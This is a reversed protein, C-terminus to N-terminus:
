KQALGGYVVAHGYEQANRLDVVQYGEIDHFTETNYEDVNQDFENIVQTNRFFADRKGDTTVVNGSGMEPSFTGPPTYVQGGWEVYNALNALDSFIRKPWFGVPEFDDGILLWWNGNALDRKVYLQKEYIPGGFKSIQEYVFDPPIDSRVLVFRVDVRIFSRTRTDGGYLGPDVRWGVQIAEVGRQIKFRAASYQDNRSLRPRHISLGAGVGNYKGARGITHVVAYEFYFSHNKLMPHDFAPQNYFDVCDYIDGYEAQITKVAPKNIRKLENELELDERASLEISGEVGNQCFFLSSLFLVLLFASLDMGRQDPRFRVKFFFSIGPLREIIRNDKLEQEEEVGLRRRRRRRISTKM